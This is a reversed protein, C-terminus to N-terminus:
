SKKKDMKDDIMGQKKDSKGLKKGKKGKRGILSCERM